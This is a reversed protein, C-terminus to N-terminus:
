AKLGSLVIGRVFFRQNFIFVLLVPLMVILSAAMLMAWDTNYQGQFFALGVPLTKMGTSDTVILPWMFDNWSGMFVITALTALAPKSLPLIVNRYVGLKGCGDIKAADELETPITMFFQRLMFTGYASFMGPLILAKYTNRWPIGTWADLYKLLIFVPIMTVVGPVMMTGLYGLFLKDRLPFKLRAFAYAALSSTLLQGFTITVAVILSNLYWVLFGDVNNLLGFFAEDVPFAKWAHSYNDWHISLREAPILLKRRVTIVKGRSSGDMIRVETNHGRELLREVRVRKGNTPLWAVKLYRDGQRVFVQETPIWKPPTQFVEGPEKLSTTVMWALPALMTLGIVTLILYSLSRVIKDTTKVSMNVM